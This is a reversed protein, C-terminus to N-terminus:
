KAVTITNRHIKDGYKVQCIYIGANVAKNDKNKGNWIAVQYEHTGSSDEYNYPETPLNDIEKGARNFIKCSARKNTPIIIRSYDNIGDFNLSIINPIVEVKNNKFERKVFINYNGENNLPDPQNKDSDSLFIALNQGAYYNDDVQYKLIVGLSDPNTNYAVKDLQYNEIEKGNVEFIITEEDIGVGKDLIGIRLYDGIEVDSNLVPNLWVFYPEYEDPTIFFSYSYDFINGVVDAISVEVNVSDIGFFSETSYWVELRNDRLSDQYTSVFEDNIRLNFSEKDIGSLEDKFAIYLISNAYGEGGDSPFAVELYPPETDSETTFSYSYNAANNNSSTDMAYIQVRVIEGFGFADIPQYNLRFGSGEDNEFSQLDYDTITVNNVKFIISNSDVESESDLILM